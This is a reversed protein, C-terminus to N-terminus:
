GRERCSARGIQKKRKNSWKKGRIMGSIGLILYILTISGLSLDIIKPVPAKIEPENEESLQIIGSSIEYAHELAPTFSILLVAVAYGSNPVTDQQSRFTSLSCSHTIRAPKVNRSM